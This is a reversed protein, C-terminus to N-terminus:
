RRTSQAYAFSIGYVTAHSKKARRAKSLAMRVTTPHAKIAHAFAATSTFVQGPKVPWERGSPFFVYLRNYNITGIVVSRVKARDRREETLREIALRVGAALGKRDTSFLTEESFTSGIQTKFAISYKTM